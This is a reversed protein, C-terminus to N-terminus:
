VVSRIVEFEFERRRESVRKAEGNGDVRRCDVRVGQGIGGQGGRVGAQRGDDLGFWTRAIRGQSIRGIGLVVM